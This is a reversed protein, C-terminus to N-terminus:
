TSGSLPRSYDGAQIGGSEGKAYLDTTVVLTTQLPAFTPRSLSIFHTGCEVRGFSLYGRADSVCRSVEEGELTLV